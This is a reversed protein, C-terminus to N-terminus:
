KARFGIMDLYEKSLSPLYEKLSREQCQALLELSGHWEPLIERKGEENVVKFFKYQCLGDHNTPTFTIPAFLSRYNRVKELESIFKERTPDPGIKKLTDGILHMAIYGTVDWLGPRGLSAPVDPYNKLFKERFTKMEPDDGEVLDNTYMHSIYGKAFKGATMVEQLDAGSSGIHPVTLGLEQSQRMLPTINTAWGVSILCDPNAQKMKLVAAAVDTATRPVEAQVVADVGWKEKLRIKAAKMTEIGWSDTVNFLAIRKYKFHDVALDAALWALYWHNGNPRFIYKNFPATIITSSTLCEVLPIKAETIVPLIAWMNGTINAGLLCFVKDKEILRRVTAIAQQPPYDTDEIRLSIKRGYIGGADNIEKAALKYGQQIPVTNSAGPGTYVGPAGVLITDKSIGTSDEALARGLLFICSMVLVVLFLRKMFVEKRALTTVLKSSAMM